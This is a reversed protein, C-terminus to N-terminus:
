GPMQGDVVRKGALKMVEAGHAELADRAPDEGLRAYILTTNLDAHRMTAKITNLDVGRQTMWSGVTRRLDHLRVDGLGARKRAARWEIDINVLHRGKRQGPFFYPNPPEGDKGPEEPLSRLVALAPASLAVVQEEGSKTKSLSLIGREWDVLDRRASLVESKRMGTLLYLWLAGRIYISSVGDMAKVLGPLEEHKLYRKRKREPFRDIRTAPNDANAATFGWTAGLRFMVALLALLRNAEYPHNAGIKSHLRAVDERHIAEVQRSRWSSPIHRDLRKEDERWSRKKAKAHRDLYEARLDGFTRGTKRKAKEDLPDAGDEVAVLAKQARKRAQDLTLVGFDGLTMMRKRNAQNRYSLVFAKRGSPYVRLGFGPLGLDWRVDRSAGDGKYRSTKIAAQTLKQKPM